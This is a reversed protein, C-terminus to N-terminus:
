KKCKENSFYWTPEYSENYAPKDYWVSWGVQEFTWELDLWNNDFLDRRKTGDPALKSTSGGVYGGSPTLTAKNGGVYSGDPALTAKSGSVYSGDPALTYGGGFAFGTLFIILVIVKRM